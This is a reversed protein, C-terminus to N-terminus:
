WIYLCCYSIMPRSECFIVIRVDCFRASAACCEQLYSLVPNLSCLIKFGFGTPKTPNQCSKPNFGPKLFGSVAEPPEHTYPTLILVALYHGCRAFM